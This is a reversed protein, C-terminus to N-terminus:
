ITKLKSLVPELVKRLAEEDDWVVSVTLVGVQEQLHKPLRVFDKSTTILAAAHTEAEALMEGIETPHYPHHDPFAYAGVLKAGKSELTDFFKEPRGIGAFAIVPEDQLSEAELETELRAKLVPLAPALRGVLAEAEAKDEGLIVVADARALGKGVPERLPGAPICRGNGFGVAGDVVLLSLDKALIPNQFGDDMVLCSAGFHMAAKAGALRNKAVWCPATESLLLPEDGVMSFTHHHPDVLVPGELKGGYGRSLYNLGPLFDALSLAVPTKGAGGAVLNGVCVVPVKAHHSRIKAYKREALKAWLLGLPALLEGWVGGSYWFGPAKM